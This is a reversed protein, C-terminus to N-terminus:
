QSLYSQFAESVHTSDKAEEFLDLPYAHGLDTKQQCEEDEDEEVDWLFKAYSALVYSFFPLL